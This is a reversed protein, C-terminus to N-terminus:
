VKRDLPAVTKSILKPTTNPRHLYIEAVSRLNDLGALSSETLSERLRPVDGGRAAVQTRKGERGEGTNCERGGFTVVIFKRNAIVKPKRREKFLKIEDGFDMSRLYINKDTGNM